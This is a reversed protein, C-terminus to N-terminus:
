RSRNQVMDRDAAKAPQGQGCLPWIRMASRASFLDKAGSSRWTFSFCKAGQPAEFNKLTSAEMFM